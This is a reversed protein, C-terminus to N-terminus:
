TCIQIQTAILLRCSRSLVNEGMTQVIEARVCHCPATPFGAMRAEVRWCMKLMFARKMAEVKIM